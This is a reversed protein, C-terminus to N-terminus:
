MPWTKPWEKRLTKYEPDDSRERKIRSLAKVLETKSMGIANSVM